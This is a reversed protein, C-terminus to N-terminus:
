HPTFNEGTWQLLCTNHSDVLSLAPPLLGVAGRVAKTSQFLCVKWVMDHQQALLM